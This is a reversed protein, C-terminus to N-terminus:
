LPLTCSRAAAGDIHVTCAGCQGVGCGYKTGTLGAHDRLVWLLPTDPAADVDHVTGNITLKPMRTDGASATGLPRNSRPALLLALSAWRNAAWIRMLSHVANMFPAPPARSGGGKLGRRM